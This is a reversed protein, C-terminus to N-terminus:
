IMRSSFNTQNLLFLHTLAYAMYFRHNWPNMHLSNNQQQHFIKSKSISFALKMESTPSFKQPWMLADSFSEQNPTQSTFGRTLYWQGYM